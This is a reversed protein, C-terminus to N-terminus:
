FGSLNLQQKQKKFLIKSKLNLQPHIFSETSPPLRRPRMWKISYHQCCLKAGYVDSNEWSTWEACLNQDKELAAHTNLKDPFFISASFVQYTDMEKFTELWSEYKSIEEM